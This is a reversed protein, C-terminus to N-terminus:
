HDSFHPPISLQMAKLGGKLNAHEGVALWDDPWDETLHQLTDSFDMPLTDADDQPDRLPMEIGDTDISIGSM